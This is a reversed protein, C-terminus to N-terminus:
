DKSRSAKAEPVEAPGLTAAPAQKAQAALHAVLNEIEQEPGRKYGKREYVESSTIAALFTGGDPRTWTVYGNQSIQPHPGETAKEATNPELALVEASSAAAPPFVYESDPM